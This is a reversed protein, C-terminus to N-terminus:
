SVMERISSYAFLCQLCMPRLQNRLLGSDCQILDLIRPATSVLYMFFVVLLAM